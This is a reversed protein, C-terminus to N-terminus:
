NIFAVPSVSWSFFIRSAGALKREEGARVSDSMQCKVLVLGSDPGRSYLGTVSTQLVKLVLDDSLSTLDSFVSLRFQGLLRSQGSIGPHGSLRSQGSIWSQGSVMSQGSLTSQGSPRYQGSLGCSNMLAQGFVQSCLVSVESWRWGFMVSSQGAM